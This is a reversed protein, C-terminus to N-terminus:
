EPLNWRRRKGQGALWFGAALWRMKTVARAKDLDLNPPVMDTTRILRQRLLMGGRLRAPDCDACAEGCFDSKQRVHPVDEILVDEFVTGEDVKEAPARARMCLAPIASFLVLIAVRLGM